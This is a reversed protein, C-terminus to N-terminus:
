EITLLAAGVAGANPGLEAFRLLPLPRLDTAFLRRAFSRQIPDLFIDPDGSLGGSLVIMAPDFLNTLNVLGLAVWNAYTAIVALAEPDRQRAAATIHEGHIGEISGVQGLVM